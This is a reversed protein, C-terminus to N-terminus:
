PPPIVNPFINGYPRLISGFFCQADDAESRVVIRLLVADLVDDDQGDAVGEGGDVGTSDDEGDQAEFSNM